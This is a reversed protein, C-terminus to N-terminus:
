RRGGRGGLLYRAKFALAAPIWLAVRSPTGVYVRAAHSEGHILFPGEYVCCADGTLELLERLRPSVTACLVRRFPRVILLAALTLWLWASDATGRSERQLWMCCPETLRTGALASLAALAVQETQPIFSLSRWPPRTNLVFGGLMPAAPAGGRFSAYVEAGAIFAADLPYGSAERYGLAFREREADTRLRRFRRTVPWRWM